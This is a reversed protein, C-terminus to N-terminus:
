AERAMERRYLYIGAVLCIAGAWAMGAMAAFPTDDSTQALRESTKEESKNEEGSKDNAAVHTVDDVVRDQPREEVRTEEGEKRDRLKITFYPFTKETGDEGVIRVETDGDREISADADGGSLIEGETEFNRSRIIFVTDEAKAYGAPASLERLIYETDIDLFSKDGHTRLINHPTGDSIWETIVRGTAKEIICLHAGEVPDLTGEELKYIRVRTINDAVPNETRNADYDLVTEALALTCSLVLVATAAVLAAVIARIARTQRAMVSM